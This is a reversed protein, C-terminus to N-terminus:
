RVSGAHDPLLASSRIMTEFAALAPKPSRDHRYLGYSQENDAGNGPDRATFWFLPGTFSWSNWIDYYLRVWEVQSREGVSNRGRTPAGVETGWIEKAGDGHQVMIEHLLQTQLFANGPEDATPSDPYQYPHHGVADFSPGAGADYIGRLFTVPSIEGDADPAPSMGGTVITAGPQVAKIATSAQVLTSAYARADPRPLWFQVHNPENWIEWHTVGLPGYRQAAIRAFRAYDSPNRPACTDRPCGPM